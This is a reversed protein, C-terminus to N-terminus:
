LKITVLIALTIAFVIAPLLLLFLKLHTRDKTMENIIYCFQARYIIDNSSM